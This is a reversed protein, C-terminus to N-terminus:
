AQEGRSTTTPPTLPLTIRVSLQQQESDAKLQLEGGHAEAIKRCLALGLGTGRTKTTFYPEGLRLSEEPGLRYGGNTMALQWTDAVKRCALHIFGGEPQAEIANRLLNEVLEAVLDRDAALHMEGNNVLEFEIKQEVMQQRYLSLVRNVLKLPDITMMRPVLPRTFRQLETIILGARRVAEKMASVLQQQEANLTPSELSLRQLGMNLANLPNRVEHAITATARGLAAAEHERALLREFNRTQRLDRQQYRYLLWSFFLGLGLLLATFLFFQRQLQSLRSFHNAADLGVVLLGKSTSLRAEATMEGQDNLLRVPDTDNKEGDAEMRVYHIGPLQSLNALLVPLATKQRLGLIAHADMGVLICRIDATKGPFAYLVTQGNQDYLLQDAQHECDPLQKFWKEPGSTTSGGSNIVTLGLLGTERALAALEDSQLPDIGNLYAVFRAKDRLFTTTLTDLTTGVLDGYALNEEIIAAMMRTRSLTNRHLDQNMAMIQWSFVAIVLAILLGFGLLNMAWSPLTRKGQRLAAQEM